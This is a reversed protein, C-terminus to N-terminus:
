HRHNHLDKLSDKKTMIKTALLTAIPISLILGISSVLMTVVEEAIIQTNLVEFFPKQSSIFLLLLPLSAGTYVLILTNVTSAIHDHGVHMAKTFLNTQSLGRKGSKLQAVIATQTITADDLIGLTGIIIGALFIGKINISGQALQLFYAEESGFGTLHTRNIFIYALISTLTLSFLTAILATFTKKNFGHSLVFTVPAILVVSFLTILIPNAGEYLNPLLFKFIIVFSYVMGAISLLGAGKSIIVVIIVFIIFLLMINDTRIHDTVFYQTSGDPSQSKLLLVKDGPKYVDNSVNEATVLDKNQNMLEIELQQMQNVIGTETQVDQQSANKIIGQYTQSDQAYTTNSFFLLLTLIALIEIINFKM